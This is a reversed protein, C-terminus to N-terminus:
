IKRKIFDKNNKFYKDFSSPRTCVDLDNNTPILGYYVLLASGCLIIDNKPVGYGLLKDLYRINSLKPSVIHEFLHYTSIM